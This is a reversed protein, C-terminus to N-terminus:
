CCVMVTYWSTDMHCFEVLVIGNFFHNEGAKAVIAPLIDGCLIKGPSIGIDHDFGHHLSRQNAQIGLDGCFRGPGVLNDVFKPCQDKGDLGM